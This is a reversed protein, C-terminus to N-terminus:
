VSSTPPARPRRSTAAASSPRDVAARAASAAVDAPDDFASAAIAVGPDTTLAARGSDRRVVISDFRDDPSWRGHHDAADTSTTASTAAFRPTSAHAPVGLGLVFACLVALLAAVRQRRAM